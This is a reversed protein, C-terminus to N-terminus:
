EPLYGRGVLVGQRFIEFGQLGVELFWERLTEATQPQDYKPALM